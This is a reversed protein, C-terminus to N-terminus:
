GEQTLQSVISGSGLVTLDHGSQQKLKRVEAIMDTRVLRTNNWEAKELTRSFVIKEAKNMGEAVVPDNRIAEPTPWYGAMLEYTLRGFLLTNGANSKEEAVENFEADVSHWSIDGGEGTFYGDLTVLNFVILKRMIM